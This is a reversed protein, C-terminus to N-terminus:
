LKSVICTASARSLVTNIHFSADGVLLSSTLKRSVQMNTTYNVNLVNCSHLRTVHISSTHPGIETKHKYIYILLLKLYLDNYLAHYSFTGSVCQRGLGRPASLTYARSNISPLVISSCCKRVTLGGDFCAAVATRDRKTSTHLARRM